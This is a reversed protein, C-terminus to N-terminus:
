PIAVNHGWTAWSGMGLHEPSRGLEQKGDLVVTAFISVKPLSTRWPEMVARGPCSSLRASRITCRVVAPGQPAAPASSVESALPPVVVDEDNAQPTSAMADLLQQHRATTIM